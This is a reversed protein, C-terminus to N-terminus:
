RKHPYKKAASVVNYRMFNLQQKKPKLTPDRKEWLDIRQRLLEIEGRQCFFNSRTIKLPYPAVSVHPPTVM